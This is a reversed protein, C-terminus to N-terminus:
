VFKYMNIKDCFKLEKYPSYEVFFPQGSQASLWFIYHQKWPYKKQLEVFENYDKAFHFEKQLDSFFYLYDTQPYNVVADVIDSGSNSIPGAPLGSCRYTYYADYVKQSFGYDDRLDRAYFYTVDSQLKSGKKLRNMFVSAINKASNQGLAEEQVVSALTILDYMTMDNETCFKEMDDTIRYDFADLMQEAIDRPESNMAFDYTAPFLFGELKYAILDSDPVTKLFDYDFGETSKCVELFDSAKCIGNKELIDAIQMANTGEPICVKVAKHSIDPNQLKEAIEEYSMSATMNYEGNIYEFDPYHNSMWNTWVIDSCVMKNNALKQGVEYEFDSKQIVLTYTDNSQNKGNIDDTIKTYFYFVATALIILVLAIALIAPLASKKRKAM